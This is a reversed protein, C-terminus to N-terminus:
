VKGSKHLSRTELASKTVKESLVSPKISGCDKTLTAAREIETRLEYINDPWDYQLLIALADPTIGFINRKQEKNFLSIFREILMPIEKKREKLPPVRIKACFLSNLFRHLPINISLEKERRTELSGIIGLSLLKSRPFTGRKGLEELFDSLQALLHAQLLDIRRIFLTDRNTSRRLKQFLVPSTLQEVMRTQDQGTKQCDYVVLEGGWNRRQHILKAFYDKGVGSEGELVVNLSSRIAHDIEKYVEPLSKQAMLNRM